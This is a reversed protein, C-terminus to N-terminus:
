ETYLLDNNVADALRFRRERSNLTEDDPRAFALAADLCDRHKRAYALAEDTRNAAVLEVVCQCDLLRQTEASLRDRESQVSESFPERVELVARRLDARKELNGVNMPPGAYQSFVELTKAYGSQILYERISDEHRPLTHQSRLYTVHDFRVADPAALAVRTGPDSCSVYPVPLPREGGGIAAPLPVALDTIEGDVTVLADSERVLVGLTQANKKITASGGVGASWKVTGDLFSYLVAFGPVEELCTKDAREPTSQRRLADRDRKSLLALGVEADPARTTGEDDLEDSIM